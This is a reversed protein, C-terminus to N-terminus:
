RPSPANILAPGVSRRSRGSADPRARPADNVRQRVRDGHGADDRAVAAPHGAARRRRDPKPLPVVQVGWDRNTAPFADALAHAVADMEAQTHALTVVPGLKAVGDLRREGRKTGPMVFEPLWFDIRDEVDTVGLNFDAALPPFHVVIAGRASNRATAPPYTSVMPM